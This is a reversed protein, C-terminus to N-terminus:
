CSTERGRRLLGRILVFFVPTFFIGCGTAIIVGAMVGTGLSNQSGSGAGNSIALPLVGLIFALSTMLIPRLRQRVALVMAEAASKGSEELEKAFEVILIANKASLGVTTLLGVQFFVDNELGR